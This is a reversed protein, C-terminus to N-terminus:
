YLFCACIPKEVEGVFTFMGCAVTNDISKDCKVTVNYSGGTCAILMTALFASYLLKKM